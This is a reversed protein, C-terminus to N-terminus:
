IFSTSVNEDPQISLTLYDFVETVYREIDPWSLVSIVLCEKQTWLVTM